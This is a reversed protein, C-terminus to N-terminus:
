PASFRTSGPPPLTLQQILPTSKHWSLFSTLLWAVKVYAWPSSYTSSRADNSWHGSVQTQYWGNNSELFFFIEFFKLKRRQEIPMTVHGPPQEGVWCCYQESTHSKATCLVIFVPPSKSESFDPLKKQDWTARCQPETPADWLGSPLLCVTHTSFM